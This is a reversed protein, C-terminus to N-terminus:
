DEKAVHLGPSIKGKQFHEGRQRLPKLKDISVITLEDCVFSHVADHNCFRKVTIIPWFLCGVLTSLFFESAM